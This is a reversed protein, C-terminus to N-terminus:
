DMVIGDCVMVVAEVLNPAELGMTQLRWVGQEWPPFSWYGAHNSCRQVTREDHGFTVEMRCGGLDDM